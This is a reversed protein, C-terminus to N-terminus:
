LIYHRRDYLIFMEVCVDSVYLSSSFVCSVSFVCNKFHVYLLGVYYLVIMRNLEREPGRNM